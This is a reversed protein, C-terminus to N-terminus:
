AQNLLDIAEKDLILQAAAILDYLQHLNTASAIPAAITPRQMLWALAVATPTAQYRNAVIDLAELIKMGKANLYKKVRDGRQSKVLDADTRYKGTLFGSALSFYPIVAINEQECISLLDNEFQEREYLNYLPQLTQYRPLNKQKSTALAQSFREGSYNSAGIAKVKGQKLLIDFAELTEDLPVTPDDRHAQYLDIYDTQLRKLSDEVATLIYKKSLGKKEPTLELGVKTAIILKDRNKRQTLYNGIVTESEGGKNGQGWISYYDATDLFNGGAALFADLLQFAVSDTVTWGFVNTGFCLPSIQLGTQGLPRKQMM